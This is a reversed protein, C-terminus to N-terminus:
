SNASGCCDAWDGGFFGVLCLSDLLRELDLRVLDVRLEGEGDTLSVAISFSRSNSFMEGIEEGRTSVLDCLHLVGFGLCRVAVGRVEVGTLLSGLVGFGVPVGLGLGLAFGTVMGRVSRPMNNKARMAVIASAEDVKM